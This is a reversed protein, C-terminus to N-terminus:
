SPRVRLRLTTSRGTTDTLRPVFTLRLSRRARASALRRALSAGPTLGTWRVNLTIAGGRRGLDVALTRGNLKLLRKAVRKGGATVAIRALGRGGRLGTVGSPLGLRLKRLLGAGRGAAFGARLTGVGRRFSLSV